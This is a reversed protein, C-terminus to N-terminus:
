ARSATGNGRTPTASGVTAVRAANSSRFPALSRSVLSSRRRRRRKGKSALRNAPSSPPNLKELPEPPPCCLPPPSLPAQSVIEEDELECSCTTAYKVRCPDRQRRPGQPQIQGGESEPGQGKPDQAATSEETTTPKESESSLKGRSEPAAIDNGLDIGNGPQPPASKITKVVPAAESSAEPPAPPFKYYDSPGSFSSRPSPRGSDLSVLPLAALPPTRSKSAINLVSPRLLPGYDILM